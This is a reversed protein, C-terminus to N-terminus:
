KPYMFVVQELGNFGGKKGYGLKRALQISLDVKAYKMNGRELVLGKACMRQQPPRITCVTVRTECPLGNHALAPFGTAKEATEPTIRKNKWLCALHPNPNQPDGEGHFVSALGVDVNVHPLLSAPVGLVAFFLVFLNTIVQM